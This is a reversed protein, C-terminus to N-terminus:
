GQDAGIRRARRLSGGAFGATRMRVIRGQRTRRLSLDATRIPGPASLNRCNALCGFGREDGCRAVDAGGGRGALDVPMSRRPATLAVPSASNVVPAVMATVQAIARPWGCLPRDEVGM